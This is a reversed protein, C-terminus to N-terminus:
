LINFIFLEEIFTLLGNKLMLLMYFENNTQDFPLDSYASCKLFCDFSNEM